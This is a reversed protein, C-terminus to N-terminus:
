MKCGCEVVVFFNVGGCMEFIWEVRNFWVADFCQARSGRLFFFFFGLFEWLNDSFLSHEPCLIGVGRPTPTGTAPLCARLWYSMRRSPALIATFAGVEWGRKPSPLNQGPYNQLKHMHAELQIIILEDIARHSLEPCSRIECLQQYFQLKRSLVSSSFWLPMRLATVRTIFFRIQGVAPDFSMGRPRKDRNDEPQVKEAWKGKDTRICYKKKTCLSNQAFLTHTFRSM